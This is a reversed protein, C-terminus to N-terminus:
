DWQFGGLVKDSTVQKTAGGAPAPPKAPGTASEKETSSAAAPVSAGSPAPARPRTEPDFSEWAFAGVTSGGRLPRREGPEDAAPASAPAVAGLPGSAPPAPPRVGSPRAALSALEHFARVLRPRENELRSELSRDM